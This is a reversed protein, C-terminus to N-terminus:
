SFSILDAALPKETPVDAASTQTPPIAPLAPPPGRAQGSSRTRPPLSRSRASSEAQLRTAEALAAELKEKGQSVESLRRVHEALSAELSVINDQLSNSRTKEAELNTTQERLLSRAAKLDTDLRKMDVERKRLNGELTEKQGKTDSLQGQLEAVEKDFSFQAEQLEACHRQWSFPRRLLHYRGQICCFPAFCPPVLVSGLDEEDEGKPGMRELEVDVSSSARHSAWSAYHETAIAVAPNSMLLIVLVAAITVDM